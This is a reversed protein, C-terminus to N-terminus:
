AGPQDREWLRIAASPTAQQEVLVFGQRELEASAPGIGTWMLGFLWIRDAGEVAERVAATPDRGDIPDPMAVVDIGEIEIGFGTMNRPDDVVELPRDSYYGYLYNAAPLLLLTDGPRLRDDLVAALGVVDDSIYPLPPPAAVASAVVAVALVAEGAVQWRGRLGAVALEAAAAVALLVCPYYVMDTRGGGLPAREAAALVTAVVLPGMFLAALWPRRLVLAAASAMLVVALVRWQDYVLGLLVNSMATRFSRIAAMPGSGVDIYREDWFTQLQESMLPVVILGFVLACFGATAGATGLIWRRDPSRRHRALVLAV